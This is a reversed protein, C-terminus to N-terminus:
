GCRQARGTKAREHKAAFVQVAFHVQSRDAGTAFTLPRLAGAIDIGAPLDGAFDLPLDVDHGVLDSILAFHVGRDDLQDEYFRNSGMARGLYYPPEEADFIVVLLDRELGGSSAVAEGVALTIAVASGNDDACPAEIVSDYHAGILVPALDRNAGPIIGAFNTFDQGHVHYPLAFSDGRYPQCGIESLRRAVWAEATAHGPTGVMRGEPLCLSRVDNELATPLQDNPNTM